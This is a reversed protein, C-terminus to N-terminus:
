LTFSVRVMQRKHFLMKYLDGDIHPRYTVSKDCQQLTRNVTQGELKVANPLADNMIETSEACSLM